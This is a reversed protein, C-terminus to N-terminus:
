VICVRKDRKNHQWIRRVDQKGPIKEGTELKRNKVWLELGGSDCDPSDAASSATEAEMVAGLAMKISALVPVMM